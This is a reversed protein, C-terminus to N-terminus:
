ISADAHMAAPPNQAEPSTVHEATAIESQPGPPKQQTGFGTATM